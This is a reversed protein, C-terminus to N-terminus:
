LFWLLGADKNGFNIFYKRKIRSHLVFTQLLSNLRNKNRRYQSKVHVIWNHSFVFLIDFKLLIILIIRIWSIEHFCFIFAHQKWIIIIMKRM